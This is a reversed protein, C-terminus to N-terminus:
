ITMSPLPTFYEPSSEIHLGSRRGESLIWGAELKGSESRILGPRDGWPFRITVDTSLESKEIVEEVVDALEEASQWREDADSRLAREIVASWQTKELASMPETPAFYVSPNDLVMSTAGGPMRFQVERGLAEGGLVTLLLRGLSYVDAAATLPKRLLQEIPSWGLTVTESIEGFALDSSDILYDGSRSVLINAPKIDTHLLQRRHLEAIERIVQAVFKLVSLRPVSIEAVLNDAQPESILLDLWADRYESSSLTDVVVRGHPYGASRVRYRVNELQGFDEEVFRRWLNLQRDGTASRTWGGSWIGHDNELGICLFRNSGGLSVPTIPRIGSVTTL